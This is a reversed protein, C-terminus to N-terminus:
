GIVESLVSCGAESTPRVTSFFLTQFHEKAQDEETNWERQWAKEQREPKIFNSIQVTDEVLM